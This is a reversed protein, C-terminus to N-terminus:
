SNTKKTLVPKQLNTNKKPALQDNISGWQDSNMCNKLPNALILWLYHKKGELVLTYQSRKILGKILWNFFFFFQALQFFILHGHSQIWSKTIDCLKKGPMVFKSVIKLVVWTLTFNCTLFSITKLRRTLLKELQSRTSSLLPHHGAFMGPLELLGWVQLLWCADGEHFTLRLACMYFSGRLGFGSDIWREM